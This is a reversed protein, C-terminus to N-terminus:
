SHNEPNPERPCVTWASSITRMMNAPSPNAERPYFTWALSIGLNALRQMTAPEISGQVHRTTPIIEYGLDLVRHTAHDWQLRSSSSLTEILECFALALHDPTKQDDGKDIEYRAIYPIDESFPGGHLLLARDGIEEIMADLSQSSFIDLDANLFPSSM